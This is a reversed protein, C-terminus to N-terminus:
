DGGTFHVERFKKLEEINRAPPAADERMEAVTVNVPRGLADGAAQRFSLLVNPASFQGYLFGPAVSLRLSGGDLTGTIM